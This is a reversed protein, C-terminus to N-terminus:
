SCGVESGPLRWDDINQLYASGLRAGRSLEDYVAEALLASGLHGRLLDLRGIAAFNSVVMADILTPM